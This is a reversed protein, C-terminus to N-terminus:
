WMFRAITGDVWTFPRFLYVYITVANVALCTASTLLLPIMPQKPTHLHLLTYPVLYYRPEVLPTPILVLSVAIGFVFLWLPTNVKRLEKFLFWGAYMYLPLPVFKLLEHKLFFRNWLYFTYHRNDALLFPHVISFRHIAFVLAAILILSLLLRRPGSTFMSAMDRLFALLRVPFVCVLGFGATAITIFYLIQAVHFGAVHNEKDGVTISGNVVLFTSFAIVISIYPWFLKFLRFFDKLLFAIFKVLIIGFFHKEHTTEIDDVIASGLVFLVWIINTQRIAVAIYGCLVSALNPLSFIGKRLRSQKSRLSLYYMLLVFFLAAADTYYLFSFFVNIPFFAIMFGHIIARSQELHTYEKMQRLLLILYLNGMAFLLNITRLVALSCFTIRISVLFTQIIHIVNAYGVGFVYLGPFTTIKNDWADLQLKLGDKFTFLTGWHGNCYQQTQPFHFIEDMYAEPAYEHFLYAIAAYAVSVLASTGAAKSSAM